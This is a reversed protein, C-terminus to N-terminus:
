ALPASGTAGRVAHTHSGQENWVLTYDPELDLVGMVGETLLFVCQSGMTAIGRYCASLLSADLMRFVGDVALPDSFKFLDRLAFNCALALLTKEGAAVFLGSSNRGFVDVVELNGSDSILVSFPYGSEEPEGFKSQGSMVKRAILQNVHHSVLRPLVHLCQEGRVTRAAAILNSGSRGDIGYCEDIFVLKLALEIPIDTRLFLESYDRLLKSLITTKGTGNGGQIFNIGAHFRLTQNTGFPGLGSVDVSDFNM